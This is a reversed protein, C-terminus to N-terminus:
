IHTQVPRKCALITGLITQHPSIQYLSVLYPWLIYFPPMINGFLILFMAEPVKKNWNKVMPYAMYLLLDANNEIETTSDAATSM